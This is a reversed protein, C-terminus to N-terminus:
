SKTEGLLRLAENYHEEGHGYLGNNCFDRGYDKEKMAQEYAASHTNSALAQKVEDSLKACGSLSGTEEAGAPITGLAVGAAILGACITVTSQRMVSEKTM